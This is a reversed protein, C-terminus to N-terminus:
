EYRLAEMPSIESAKKAPYVGFIIGVVLSVVLAIIISSFSILFPWDYGLQQAIIATIFSIVVGLFVGFLGGIVSVTASEVLFQLLVDKKKAGVAKRLGVEKIRQNVSILMINMIGVGGVLLAVAGVTLLFYRVVDTVNRVTELASAQDRVSFDKKEPDDIGHRDLLLNEISKKSSEVFEPRSTELRIFNLYDVGLVKKQATKLPIIIGNDQDSVGFASVGRQELVGIVKYYQKKIKIKENLPNKNDFIDDAIESGLVAVKSLSQSETKSFFRGKEVKTNEVSLYDTTTGLIDVIKSKDGKSVVESGKVYGAGNSIEPLEPSGKIAELDEEILTKVTIGFAAAPPGQENSAGPLVVILNSGASEIQNLILSQASNGIAMIVIVSAVGIIIGLITLFSRLKESM